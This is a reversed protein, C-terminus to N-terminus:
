GSGIAPACRLSNATPQVGKNPTPHRGEARRSNRGSSKSSQLPKWTRRAALQV